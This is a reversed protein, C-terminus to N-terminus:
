TRRKRNTTARVLIFGVLGFLVMIAIYDLFFWVRPESFDFFAFVTKRFMYEPLQRKIFAFVGYASILAWVGVTWRYASKNKSNLKNIPATLHMGAHICCFVLSWYACMLHIERASASVGNVQIFTFLHKSMLIGSVPQLVMLLLLLLDLCTRIIRAISQKGKFAALYWKRNLIHHVVFLFLMATGIIEHFAEGILSYAMLMPLLVTMAIDLVLRLNKKKM